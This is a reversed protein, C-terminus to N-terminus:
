GGGEPTRQRQVTGLCLTLAPAELALRKTHKCRIRFGHAELDGSGTPPGDTVVGLVTQSEAIISGLYGGAGIVM